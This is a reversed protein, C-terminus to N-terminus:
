LTFHSKIKNATQINESMQAFEEFSVWKFDNSEGYDLVLDDPNATFLYSFGYHIHAPEQKKDSNPINHIDLHFPTEPSNPLLPLYQLNTFGAEEMAERMAEQWLSDDIEDIHGGPQLWKQLTKHELLLVKSLDTSLVFAKTSLHAEFNKRDRLNQNESLQKELLKKANNADKFPYNAVANELLKYFM